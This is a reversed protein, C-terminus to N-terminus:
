RAWAANLGPFRAMLPRMLQLVMTTAFLEQYAPVGALADRLQQTFPAASVRLARVISTLLCKPKSSSRTPNAAESGDDLAPLWVANPRLSPERVDNCALVASEPASSVVLPPM